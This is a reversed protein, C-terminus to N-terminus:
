PPDVEGFRHADAIAQGVANVNLEEILVLPAPVRMYAYARVIDTEGLV